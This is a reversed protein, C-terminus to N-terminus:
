GHTMFILDIREGLTALDREVNPNLPNTIWPDIVIIRGKPTKIRFAAHGFWTLETKGSATPRAAAPRAPPQSGAPPPAPATPRKDAAPQAVAVGAAGLVFMSVLSLARM